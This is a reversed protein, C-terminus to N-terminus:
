PVVLNTNNRSSPSPTASAYLITLSFSAASWHGLAKVDPTHARLQNMVGCGAVVSRCTFSSPLWPLVCPSVFEGFLAPITISPLICVYPNKDYIHYMRYVQRRPADTIALLPQFIPSPLVVIVDAVVVQLYFVVFWVVSETPFSPSPPLHVATGSTPM